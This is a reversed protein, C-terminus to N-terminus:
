PHEQPFTEPHQAFIPTATGAAVAPPPRNRQKTRGPACEVAGM